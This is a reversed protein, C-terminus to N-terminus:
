TIVGIKMPAPKIRKLEAVASHRTAGGAAGCRIIVIGIEDPRPM